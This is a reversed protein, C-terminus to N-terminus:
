FETERRAVSLHAVDDRIRRREDDLPAGRAHERYRAVHGFESLLALAGRLGVLQAGQALEGGADRVVEVVREGGYETAGLQQAAGRAVRFERAAEVDDEGGCLVGGGGNPAYAAERVLQGALLERL